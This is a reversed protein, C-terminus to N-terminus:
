NLLIIQPKINTGGGGGTGSHGGGGGPFGFGRFQIKFKKTASYWTATPYLRITFLSNDMVEYTKTLGSAVIGVTTKTDAGDKLYV